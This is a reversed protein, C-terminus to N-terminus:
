VNLYVRPVRKGLTTVVEYNITGLIEAIDDATLQPIGFLTVTDGPRVATIGSIDAMCQDMCIQGVLPAYQGHIVVSAKGSLLRSWGDAYGLPLTAITRQTDARYIRGYSISTGAAVKKVHAVQAKLCMAPILPISRKVEQSPWLGYLVIGPRVMDFHAEPMEITAASNAMHRIAVDVGSSRIYGLAEQFKALQERAYSKDAAEATAFHSFVGEVEIGPMQAAAAAFQGAEAPLIGIRGMGTDIKIHLKVEKGTEVGAASLARVADISYVTQTLEYAAVTKAQEPPTFGLVQIPVVFGARRLEIAEALIAVALRDAGAALVAAAVAAAGHGYGDAKVVACLRVNPSLGKKIARVNAKIAALDVEAWVPREFM